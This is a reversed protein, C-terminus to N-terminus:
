DLEDHEEEESTTQEEDSEDMISPITNDSNYESDTTENDDNRGTNAYTNTSDMMPPLMPMTSLSTDSTMSEMIINNISSDLIVNFVKEILAEERILTEEEKDGPHGMHGAVSGGGM